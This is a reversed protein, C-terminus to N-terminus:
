KIIQRLKMKAEEQQREFIALYKPDFWGSVGDNYSPKAMLRETWEATRPRAAIREEFGLHMLRAMYSAYSIDALSYDDGLLWPGHELAAEM